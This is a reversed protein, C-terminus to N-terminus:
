TKEMLLVVAMTSEIKLIPEADLSPGMCRVKTSWRTMGQILESNNGKDSTILTISKFQAVEELSSTVQRTAATIKM